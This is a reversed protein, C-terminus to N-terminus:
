RQCPRKCLGRQKEPLQGIMSFSLSSISFPLLLVVSVLASLGVLAGIYYLPKEVWQVDHLAGLAMLPISVQTRQTHVHVNTWIRTRAHKLCDPVTWIKKKKFCPMQFQPMRAPLSGEIWIPSGEFESFDVQRERRLALVSSKRAAMDSKKKSVAGRM